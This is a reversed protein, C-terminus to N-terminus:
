RAGRDILDHPPNRYPYIDRKSQFDTNFDRRLLLNNLPHSAVKLQNFVKLSQKERRESLKELGAVFLAERYSLEPFIIKLCRKQVGEVESSQSKTLGCHWVASSFELM